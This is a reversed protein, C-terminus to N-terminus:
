RVNRLLDDVSRQQQRPKAGGAIAHADIMDLMEGLRTRLIEAKSM